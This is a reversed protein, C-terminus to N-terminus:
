YCVQMRANSDPKATWILASQLKRLKCLRTPSVRGGESQVASAICCANSSYALEHRALSTCHRAIAHLLCECRGSAVSLVDSLADQVEDYGLYEGDKFEPALWAQVQM